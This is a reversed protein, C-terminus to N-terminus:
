SFVDAIWSARKAEITSFLFKEIMERSTRFEPDISISRDVTAKDGSLWLVVRWGGQDYGKFSLARCNVRRLVTEVIERMDKETM